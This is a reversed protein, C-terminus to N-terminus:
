APDIWGIHGDHRRYVVNLRGHGANKFVFAPKESLDLQMVADSVSMSRVSTLSEAVIVPPDEEEQGPPEEEGPSALTYYSANEAPLPAKTENHHNKLRRKYRRVRKEMKELAEEFAGYADGGEGHATLFVGSALHTTVECGIESRNKEFTVQAEAGRDFYKHHTEYYSQIIFHFQCFIGTIEVSELGEEVRYQQRLRV